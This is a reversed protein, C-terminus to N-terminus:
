LHPPYPHPANVSQLLHILPVHSPNRPRQRSKLNFQRLILSTPHGNRFHEVPVPIDAYKLAKILSYVQRIIALKARDQSPQDQSRVVQAPVKSATSVARLAELEAQLRAIDATSSARLAELEGRLAKERGEGEELERAGKRRKEDLTGIRDRLGSSVGREKELEQGYRIERAETDQLLAQNKQEL